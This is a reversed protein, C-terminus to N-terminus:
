QTKQVRDLNILARNYAIMAGLESVRANALDRQRIQLELTTSIGVAFRREEAELQQEAARRFTQTAQVRQYSNQVQRVADRVERVIQLELEQLGLEQQRKQVQSQAYAVEAGTRGLPYSVTVGVSWTPYAGGFTDGLASGFTRDTRDIIPPPFGSGFVFQTGATGQASYSVNFDVAPLTNNRGLKLNLNTIELARKEVALDLRNAMAVKIAEDLNIDRPTLQITDTPVLQVTWFDARTPDLILSRLGDEATAIQAEALILQEQNSAVQAESQIIEIQPSQGVAVRARSQRLSQQAIEMNQEAVKKGEIAGVLNLYALRVSAETAVIRQQLQIDTIERQRATTVLSNRASDVRLDRLLPQSFSVQLSSGLRPNYSSIVNTQTNRNGSWTVSYAGGYWRLSQAVTGSFSLGASTIDTSGQTFDSPVSKSTRRGLSSDLRPLFAARALAVSHSAIDLNLRQAKLGLNAELAMAVAQEMTLPLAQGAAPGAAQGTAQGALAEGALLGGSALVLLSSLALSRAANGVRHRTIM